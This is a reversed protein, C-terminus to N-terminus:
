SRNSEPQGDTESAPRPGRFGRGPRRLSELKEKQEETLVSQIKERAKEAISRLQLQIKEIEGLKAEVADEDPNKQVHTGCAKSYNCTLVPIAPAKLV